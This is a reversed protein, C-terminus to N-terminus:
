FSGRVGFGVQGALFNAEMRASASEQQDLLPASFSVQSDRDGLLWYCRGQLYLNLALPGVRLVDGEISLSPGVWRHVDPGSRGKFSLTPPNRPNPFGQAEPSGPAARYTFVPEFRFRSQMYEIGPQIVIAHDPIPLLFRLDLGAHWMAKWAIFFEAGLEAGAVRQASSITATDRLSFSGGARLVARPRGPFVALPPTAMGGEIRVLLSSVTNTGHDGAGFTTGGFARLEQAHVGFEVNLAPSWDRLWPNVLLAENAPESAFVDSGTSLVALILLLGSRGALARKAAARVGEVFAGAAADMLAPPAARLPM